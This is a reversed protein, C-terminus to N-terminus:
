KHPEELIKNKIPIIQGYMQGHVQWRAQWYSPDAIKLYLDMHIRYEDNMYVLKVVCDTNAFAM